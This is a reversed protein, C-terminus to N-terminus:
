KYTRGLYDVIAKRVEIPEFAGMCRYIVKGGPAVLLTYPIAGQWEKDVAEILTYKDDGSFQVNRMSAAQKSLFEQVKAQESLADMNVTVIEFDRKRYMRHMTVLEPFEAVCPGCWTAWVNILRLKTSDNKVLGAIGAADMSELAAPEKAWKDLSEQVTHRKDSWKISCGMTKTTEVPAPKGALVADIANRTDNSKVKDPKDSDDVRGAYRLKREQDFVFVHPTSIPGYAKSVEQKEGDYLYPFDFGRDKARVKMDEFSDGFETYGLEDLRLALDDNPSIAVLAVGKDRYDRAISIIRDEYAQATPCHNCTFVIVLVKAGAFDSLTYTKGDVGPLSFDPASAGIALTKPQEEARAGLTLAACFVLLAFCFRHTM